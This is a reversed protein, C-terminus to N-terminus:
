DKKRCSDLNMRNWKKAIRDVADLSSQIQEDSHAASIAGYGHFINFGEQIMALRFIRERLEMDCIEPNWVQEPSEIKDCHDHLFHVGVVSSNEAVSNGDGTCKVHFGYTNFINEIERRVWEGLRGIRPYIDDEHAILYKAFTLGAMMSTPHASFTGGEVKVREEKKSESGCLKMIENKGAIASVPMGGGIAKGFVTLDPQVDYLTQLAGAHFRFGSVVEDFILMTGYRDCLRRADHIYEKKGFIFGGAGIFPELILCATRDGYLRFMETLNESNNFQTILITEDMGPPLGASELKTLGREFVSIGKLVYPQSGHWGGGIKMVLDRGTKAKSLMIAYMTALTGSTTFRIKDASVRSLLLGALEAQFTGPFGTSLGNGQKFFEILADCVFPPNHGLINAFHGQWFDVYSHGDLDTVVSGKSQVDYFPFPEFLRLNHSGGRIQLRSAKQFFEESKKHSERYDSELEKLLDMKDM